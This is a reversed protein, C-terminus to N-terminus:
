NAILVNFKCTAITKNDDEGLEEWLIILEERWKM